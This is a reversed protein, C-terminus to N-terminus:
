RGFYEKGVRYVHSSGATPGMTDAFPKVHDWKIKERNWEAIIANFPSRILLISKGFILSSCNKSCSKGSWLPVKNSPRHTKTVLVVGSRVNECPFGHRRLDRDCYLSGTCLGTTMQLLGRVWTNGSGPFSALAIPHRTKNHLFSCTSPEISAKAAGKTCSSYLRGEVSSLIDSCENDSCQHIFNSIPSPIESVPPDTTQGQTEPNTPLSFEKIRPVPPISRVTEETNSTHIYVYVMVLVISCFSFAFLSKTRWRSCM